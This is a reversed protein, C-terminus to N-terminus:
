QSSHLFHLIGGSDLLDVLVLVKVIRIQNVADLFFVLLSVIFSRLFFSFLIQHVKCRLCCRIVIAMNVGYETEVLVFTSLVDLGAAVVELVLAVIM